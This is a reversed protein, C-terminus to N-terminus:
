QAGTHGFGGDSRSTESLESALEFQAREVKAFVIQAIRENPEITYEESSINAIAVKLEGRYDSDITGIGNAVVIGKLSLGSRSRIQGEYGDPIEIFVGTPVLAIESPKVTLASEIGAKLDAGSSGATKYLPADGSKLALIKVTIV